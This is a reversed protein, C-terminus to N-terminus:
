TAREEMRDATADAVCAMGLLARSREPDSPYQAARARSVAASARALEVDRPTPQYDSKGVDRLGGRHQGCRCRRVHTCDM